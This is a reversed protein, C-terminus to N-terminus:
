KGLLLLKSGKFEKESIQRFGNKLYFGVNREGTATILHVPSDLISVLKEILRSGVGKGRASAATNIHLHAPFEEYCDNFLSLHPHASLLYEDLLTHPCCLIYAFISNSEEAVFCYNPYNEIYHDLYKRKFEQKAQNDKFTKVASSEFFIDVIEQYHDDSLSTTNKIIM